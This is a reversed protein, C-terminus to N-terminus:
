RDRAPAPPPISRRRRRRYQRPAQAFAQLRENRLAQAIQRRPQPVQAPPWGGGARDRPVAASNRPWRRRVRQAGSRRRRDARRRLADSLLQQRGGARCRAGGALHNQYARTGAIGFQERQLGQPRELIRIDDQVISQHRGGHQIERPAVSRPDADALSGAPLARALLVDVLQHDLVRALSAPDHTELAAVGEDEATASLLELGEGAGSDIEGDHRADRGRGAAGGIGSNRERMALVGVAHAEHRRM